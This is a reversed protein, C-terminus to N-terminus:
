LLDRAARLIDVYSVIGILEGDIADVVPVAGVKQEIMTDIVDTVDEDVHTTIVDGSMVSSVLTEEQQETPAVNEIQMEYPQSHERVDRDSVMGILEGAQDVVPLHRVDLEYLKNIAEQVPASTTVYEPNRTMVDDVTLVVTM